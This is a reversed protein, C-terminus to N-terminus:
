LIRWRLRYEYFSGNFQYKVFFSDDLFRFDSIIDFSGYECVCLSNKFDFLLSYDTGERKLSCRSFDFFNMVGDNFSIISGEISCDFTGDILVIDDCSLFVDIM